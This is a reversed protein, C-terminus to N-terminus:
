VKKESRCAIFGEPNAEAAREAFERFTILRQGFEDNCYLSSLQDM